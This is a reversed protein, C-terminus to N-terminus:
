AVVRNRGGRKAAYLKEDVRQYLTAPQEGSALEAVGLSLTCLHPDWSDTVLDVRRARSGRNHLSLVPTAILVRSRAGGRVATAM